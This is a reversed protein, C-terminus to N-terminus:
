FCLTRIKALLKEREEAEMPVAQTITERAESSNGLLRLASVAWARTRAKGDKVLAVLAPLPDALRLQMEMDGRAALQFITQAAACRIEEEKGQLLQVITPVESSLAEEVLDTGLDEAVAEEGSEGAPATDVTVIAAIATLAQEMSSTAAAVMDKLVSLAGAKMLRVRLWNKCCMLAVVAAAQEVGEPEALQAVVNSVVTSSDIAACVRPLREELSDGELLAGLLRCFRRRDAADDASALAREIVELVGCELMLTRSGKAPSLAVLADTAAEQAEPLGGLLRILQPIASANIIVVRCPPSTALSALTNALRIKEFPLVQDGPRVLLAVLTKAGGSAIISSRGEVTQALAELSRIAQVRQDPHGGLQSLARSVADGKSALVKASREM